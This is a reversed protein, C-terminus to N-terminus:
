KAVVQKECVTKLVKIGATDTPPSVFHLKKPDNTYEDFSQGAANFFISHLPAVNMQQCDVIWNTRDRVFDGKGPINQPQDLHDETAFTMMKGAPQVSDMDLLLIGPKFTKGMAVLTNAYSPLVCAMNSLLLIAFSKRLMLM